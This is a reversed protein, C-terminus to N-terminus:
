RRESRPEKYMHFFHKKDCTTYFERIREFTSMGFTDDFNLCISLVSYAMASDSADSWDESSFRNNWQKWPVM